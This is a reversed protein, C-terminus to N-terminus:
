LTRSLVARELTQLVDLFYIIDPDIIVESDQM